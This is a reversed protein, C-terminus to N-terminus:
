RTQLWSTWLWSDTEIEPYSGKAVDRAIELFSGDTKKLINAKTVISVKKKGNNRAFDFAAKAIRRTGEYTTVKFDM